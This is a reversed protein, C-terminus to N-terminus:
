WIKDKLDMEMARIRRMANRDWESSYFNNQGISDNGSMERYRSM